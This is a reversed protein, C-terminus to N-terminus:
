SSLFRDGVYSTPIGLGTYDVNQEYPGRREVVVNNSLADYDYQTHDFQCRRFVDASYPCGVEPDLELYCPKDCVTRNVRRGFIDFNNFESRMTVSTTDVCGESYSSPSGHAMSVCAPAYELPRLM